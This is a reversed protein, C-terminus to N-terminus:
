TAWCGVSIYAGINGGLFGFPLALLSIVIAFVIVQIGFHDFLKGFLLATLGSLGMAAAYLLPIVEANTISNKQFHFSLLPFDIFGLALFGAAAVYFWFVQPLKEQKPAPPPAPKRSRAGRALVLSILAAVAPIALWLFASNFQHERAVAITVLIPGLVAGAQDMASHLGFGWGHGVVQTSESLLVDVSPGRLGKGTREAIILLAAMQWNGALALLPVAVLNLFYGVGALLWYARTRDAMRGSFLRLSAAIMEGFGSIIGVETATAGLEKLFPGVVSRAGEYTMDAFLSVFGIAIIFRFAETRDRKSSKVIRQKDEIM